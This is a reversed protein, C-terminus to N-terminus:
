FRQTFLNQKENDDENQFVCFNDYKEVIYGHNLKIEQNIPIM